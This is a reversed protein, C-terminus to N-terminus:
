RFSPDIKSNLFSVQKNKLHTLAAERETKDEILMIQNVEDVLVRDIETKLREAAAQPPPYLGSKERQDISFAVTSLILDVVGSNDLEETEYNLWQHWSPQSLGAIYEELTRYTLKYGYKEPNDFAPSGPDIVIPGSIPGGLPVKLEGSIQSRRDLATLEEWLQWTEKINEPNEGALGASFFTTVPIHYKHCLQITKMMEANTYHRGLKKRVEDSGTDPCLHIVVQRGIRAVQRIFEENAPALLDISLREIGASEGALGDLLERWYADGGMRPDQYLGIFRVGQAILKRIDQIIRAPSRFAPRNMGLHTKYSYASGGCISCNYTCGRCVALSWRPPADPPFISTKPEILDFRTYEFEDLDQSAPLLPTSRIEGSGTRYTLNPTDGLTGTKEFAQVLQLLPKEGEARIVADVFPYTRIIEEHFRTATLGGMVIMSGPHFEKCLRAVEMAGPAHHQFHLGIAIIPASLSKLHELADFSRSQVMRDGLNDVMVKFGHRDLYEAISLMGIPVKNFQIQEASTGLAGTFVPKERFGFVAPPHIIIVNYNSM